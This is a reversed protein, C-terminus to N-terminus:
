FLNVLFFGRIPKIMIGVIFDSRLDKSFLYLNKVLLQRGFSSMKNVLNDIFKSEREFCIKQM